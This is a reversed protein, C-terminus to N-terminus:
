AFLFDSPDVQAPTVNWLEITDAGVTILAGSPGQTITLDAFSHVASAGRLDIRDIGDAFDDIIDRGWGGPTGPTVDSFVFTDRNRDGHLEDNGAGGVLVDNGDGGLLYDDGGLGALTNAGASGTLKDAFASGTVNEIAILTDGAADGFEASVGLVIRVGDGSMAYSATDIGAGGDLVDAGGGGTLLDAGDLGSLRDAGNGGSLRNTGATGILVDDFASGVADEIDVLRDGEAYGGAGRGTSLDITVAATSRDYDARDIGAGGDLLDIGTRGVLVDDGAEGYAKGGDEAGLEIRDDGTGGYLRDVGGGSSLTDADAGGRLLDDGAGGGLLDAGARGRLEGGLETTVLVNASANGIGLHADGRLSLNEVDSPLAFDGYSEVSDIGGGPMEAIVETGAIVYRDDGEGGSVTGIFTGAHTDFRDDGKDLVVAGFITGTNVVDDDATSLQMATGGRVNTTGIYGSNTIDWVCPGGTEIAATSEAQITGRNNIAIPSYGLGTGDGLIGAQDGSVVGGADIEIKAQSGAKIGYGASLIHGSVILHQTPQGFTYPALLEIAAKSTATQIFYADSALVAFLDGVTTSFFPGAGQRDGHLITM